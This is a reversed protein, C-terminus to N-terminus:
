GNSKKPQSKTPLSKLPSVAPPKGSADLIAAPISFGCRAMHEIGIELCLKTFAAKTMGAKRAASELSKDLPSPMRLPYSVTKEDEQDKMIFPNHVVTFIFDVKKKGYYAKQM